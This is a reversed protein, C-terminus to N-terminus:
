IGGSVNVQGVQPASANGQEQEIYKSIEMFEAKTFLDDLREKEVQNLSKGNVSHLRLKVAEIHQSLAFAMPNKVSAPVAQASLIEDSIKGPRMVVKKGTSLKLEDYMVKNEKAQESM